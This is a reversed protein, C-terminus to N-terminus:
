ITKAAQFVHFDDQPLKERVFVFFAAPFPVCEADPSASEGGIERQMNPTQRTIPLMDARIRSIGEFM